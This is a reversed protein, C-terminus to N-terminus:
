STITKGSQSHKWTGNILNSPNKTILCQNNELRTLNQEAVSKIWTSNPEKSLQSNSIVSKLTFQLHSQKM